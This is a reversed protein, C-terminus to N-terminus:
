IDLVGPMGVMRRWMSLQGLHFGTHTTMLHGVFDGVTSFTNKVFALQIGHPRLLVEETAGGIAESVRAQGAELAAILDHKSAYLGRDSTVNSGPRGRQHWEKPCKPPQGFLNGAYDTCIALHTLIWAPHNVGPAPMEALKADDVDHTLLKCYNLMIGNLKREREFM